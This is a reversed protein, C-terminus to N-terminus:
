GSGEVNTLVAWYDQGVVDWDHYHPPIPIGRPGAGINLLRVDAVGQRTAAM